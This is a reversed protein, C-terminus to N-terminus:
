AQTSLDNAAIRGVGLVFISCATAMVFINKTLTSKM